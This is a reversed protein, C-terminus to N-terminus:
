KDDEKRGWASRKRKRLQNYGKIEADSQGREVWNKKEGGNQCEEYCDGLLHFEVFWVVVVLQNLKELPYSQCLFVMYMLFWIFVSCFLSSHKGLNYSKWPKKYLKKM